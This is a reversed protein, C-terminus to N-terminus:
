VRDCENPQWTTTPPSATSSPRRPQWTALPLDGGAREPHRLTWRIPKFGSSRRNPDTEFYQRSPIRCIARTRFLFRAQGAGWSGDSPTGGTGDRSADEADSLVRFGFWGRRAALSFGAPTFEQYRMPGPGTLQLGGDGTIIFDRGVDGVLADPMHKPDGSANYGSWALRGKHILLHAIMGGGRRPWTRVSRAPRRSRWARNIVAERFLPDPDALARSRGRRIRIGSARLSARRRLTQESAGFPAREIRERCLFQNHAPIKVEPGTAGLTFAKLRSTPDAETDGRPGRGGACM